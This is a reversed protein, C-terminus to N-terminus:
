SIFYKIKSDIGYYICVAFLVVILFSKVKDPLCQVVKWIEQLKKLM